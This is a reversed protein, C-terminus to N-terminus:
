SKNLQAVLDKLIADFQKRMELMNQRMRLIVEVGPMNVEMEEMLIKALRVKDIEAASYHRLNYGEPCTSCIIEERELEEILGEDVQITEIIETITWYEKAM